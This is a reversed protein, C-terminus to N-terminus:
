RFFLLGFGWSFIHVCVTFGSISFGWWLSFPFFVSLLFILLVNKFDCLYSWFLVKLTM